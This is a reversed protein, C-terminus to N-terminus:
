RTIAQRRLFRLRRLRIQLSTPHIRFSPFVRGTDTLFGV